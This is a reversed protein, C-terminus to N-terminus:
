DFVKNCFPRSLSVLTEIHKTRPFFDLPIVHDLQWGQDYFVSLDRVLSEPHCSLYLLYDITRADALTRVVLDSLGQRPPDIMVVRRKSDDIPDSVFLDTLHDELRGKRIEMHTYHHYDRNYNALKIAYPNEELCIVRDVIDYFCISFLGVGGYLDFFITNDDLLNLAKISEILDPLISLNAQFFTELSFHIRKGHIETWLYDSEAMQLSRRGIGGWFVRGDDGTKVVLNANRYRNSLKKIAQHKLEPLFQAVAPMAIACTQAPVIRRNQPSSFGVVVEGSRTQLLRMDLRCRYHYPNPSPVISKMTESGIDLRQTLLQRISEEKIRLEQHYPINQYQCGGCTGFIPCLPIEAHELSPYIGAEQIM